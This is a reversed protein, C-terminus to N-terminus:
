NENDDYDRFFYWVDEEYPGDAYPITFELWVRDQHELLKETIMLKWVYDEGYGKEFFRRANEKIANFYGEKIENSIQAGSLYAKAFGRCASVYLDSGVTNSNIFYEVPTETAIIMNFVGDSFYSIKRFFDENSLRGRVTLEKIRAHKFFLPMNESDIYAHISVRKNETELFVECGIEKVSDPIYIDTLSDTGAFALTGIETVGDPIILKSLSRCRTFSYSGIKKLGKPLTIDTLSLCERFSATGIKEVGEPIVVKKLKYCGDFTKNGTEKVSSCLTVTRLNTCHLFAEDEIATVSESFAVTEIHRNDAFAKHGIIRVTDPIIIKKEKGAYRILMDNEILWDNETNDVVPTNKDQEADIIENGSTVICGLDKFPM